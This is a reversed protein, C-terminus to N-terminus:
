TMGIRRSYEDAGARLWAHWNSMPDPTRRELDALPGGLEEASVPRVTSGVVVVDGNSLTALYMDEDEPTPDPQSTHDFLGANIQATVTQGCCSTYDYFSHPVPRTLIGAGALIRQCTAIAAPTAPSTTTVDLLISLTWDNANGSVKDGNNSAMNFDNGRIEFDDGNGAVLYGYGLSYGRNTTYDNQMSRLWGPKDAPISNSGSYHIVGTTRKAKPKPGTIPNAPDQWAERPFSTM